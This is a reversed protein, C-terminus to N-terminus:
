RQLLWDSLDLGSLVSTQKIDDAYKELLFAHDENSMHCKRLNYRIVKDVMERLWIRRPEDLLPRILRKLANDKGAVRYLVAHLWKNKAVGGVNTQLSFFDYHPDVGLFACMGQITQLNNQKLDEYRVFYFQDKPFYSFYDRIGDAVLGHQFYRFPSSWNEKIREDEVTLADRFTLKEYGDRVMHLYLSFAREVPNRLIFIFKMEPKYRFITKASGKFHVYLSSEGVAKYAESGAFLQEYENKKYIVWRNFMEEDFPGAYDPRNGDFAFFRPEKLPCMFIEPHQCLYNHVSSSGSKAMGAIVFNPMAGM